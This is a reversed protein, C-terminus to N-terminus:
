KAKSTRRLAHHSVFQAIQRGMRAGVEDSNRFHIGSYVRADIVEQVAESFRTWTRTIGTQTVTLSVGPNDGFELTLIKAMASSNTAHGSPYDPHPPTAIFPEWAADGATSDNGDSNGNMIASQPRWFNFEYKAEWCAISADASALYFLAFLQAQESLDNNRTQAAQRLLPNWIATPSARWFLAIDSQETSRTSGFKAGLKKIENYDKTYLESDLAPPADPRFQATSRLVFPTVRGWGPLQAPASTLRVWVGAQGANPADYNFQAESSHDNERLALIAAAAARGYEIGPDDMSLGRGLIADSFNQALSSENGHRLNNLSHYAASIAAAEPSANEPAPPPSLYTEFEGTIGNVADHMAVQVIAMVRTQQIPTLTVPVSSLVMTAAIQNWELVPDTVVIAPHATTPKASFNLPSHAGTACAGNLLPCVSLMLLAVVLTMTLALGKSLTKGIM